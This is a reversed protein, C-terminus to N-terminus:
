PSKIQFARFLIKNNRLMSIESFEFNEVYVYIGENAGKRIAKVLVRRSDLADYKLERKNRLLFSLAHLGAIVKTKKIIM